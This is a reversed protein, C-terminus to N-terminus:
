AKHMKSVFGRFLKQLRYNFNLQKQLVQWIRRQFLKGKMINKRKPFLVFDSLVLAHWSLQMVVDRCVLSYYRLVALFPNNNLNTMWKIWRIQDKQIEHQEWLAVFYSLFSLYERHRPCKFSYLLYINQVANWSCPIFSFSKLFLKSAIYWLIIKFSLIYCKTIQYTQVKTNNCDPFKM